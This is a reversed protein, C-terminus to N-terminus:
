PKGLSASGREHYLPQLDQFSRSEQTLQQRVWQIASKEDNVFLELQEMVEVGLRKRDYESTQEPLFYMSDREPFLQKLGAHFEAASM